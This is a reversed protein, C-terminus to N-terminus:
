FLRVAKEKASEIEQHTTSIGRKLESKYNERHLMPTGGSYSSTDYVLLLWSDETYLFFWSVASHLVVNVHGRDWALGTEKLQPITNSERLHFEMEFVQRDGNSDLM